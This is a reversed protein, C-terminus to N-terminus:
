EVVDLVLPIADPKEKGINTAALIREQAAAFGSEKASYMVAIPDGANVFDGTKAKLYLGSTPDIVDEKTNRGAGLLL